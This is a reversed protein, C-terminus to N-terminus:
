KREIFAEGQFKDAIKGDNTCLSCRKFLCWVEGEGGRYISDPSPEIRKPWSTRVISLLCRLVRCVYGFSYSVPPPPRVAPLNRSSWFRTEQARTRKLFPRSSGEELETPRKHHCLPDIEDTDAQEDQWQIDRSPGSEGNLGGFVKWECNRIM